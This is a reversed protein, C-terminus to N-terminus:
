CSASSSSSAAATGISTSSTLFLLVPPRPEDVVRLSADVEGMSVDGGGAMTTGSLLPLSASSDCSSRDDCRREERRLETSDRPEGGGAGTGEEELAATSGAGAGALVAGGGEGGLGELGAVTASGAGAAEEEELGAAAGAEMDYRSRMARPEEEESALDAMGAGRTEMLPLRRDEMWLGVVLAAGGAGAFPRRRMDTDPLGAGCGGASLSALLDSLCGAAWCCDLPAMPPGTRTVAGASAAGLGAVELAPDRSLGDFRSAPSCESM